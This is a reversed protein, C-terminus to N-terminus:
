TQKKPDRADISTYFVNRQSGGGKAQPTGGEKETEEGFRIGGGGLVGGTRRPGDIGGRKFKEVGSENHATEEPRLTEKLEEVAGDYARHNARLSTSTPVEKNGTLLRRIRVRKQPVKREGQSKWSKERKFV